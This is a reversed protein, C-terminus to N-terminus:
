ADVDFFEVEYEELALRSAGTTATILESIREAAEASARLAAEDAWLTLVLTKGGPHHALRILGRFGTSERLWPLVQERVIELGEDHQEPTTELMHIRALM